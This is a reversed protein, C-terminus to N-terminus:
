YKKINRGDKSIVDGLYRAEDIEEMLEEGDYKDQIELTDFKEKKAEVESWSDVYM